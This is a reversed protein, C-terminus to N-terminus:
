LLGTTRLYSVAVRLNIFPAAALYKLAIRASCQSHLTVARM